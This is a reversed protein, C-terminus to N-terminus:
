NIALEQQLDDCCFRRSQIEVMLLLINQNSNTFGGLEWSVHFKNRVLYLAPVCSTNIEHYSLYLISKIPGVESVAKDVFHM